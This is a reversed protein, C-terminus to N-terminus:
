PPPPYPPGFNSEAATAFTFFPTKGVPDSYIPKVVCGSSCATKKFAVDAVMWFRNQDSSGEGDYPEFTVATPPDYYGTPGLEAALAGDCFIKLTPHVAYTEGHSSYYHASIRTWDNQPPYDINVNEPACFDFSDPDQELPDCTINDLDLRPNHCGQGLAQWDAGVGRPAFYCTNKEFVPDLWWNVPDPPMFMPPDKFWKPADPNGSEFDDFVCNSWTCDQPSGTISWPLTNQPRHVHLDLDVGDGGLDHEWQLEVRLGPAGVFLPYTCSDTGGGPVGKTYTVTYEGSQLPKYDDPPFQGTVGPCPNVGLPCVVSWTETGAVANQSFSGTGDKLDVNQFPTATIPHCNSMNNAFCNDAVHVGGVCDGWFGNESCKETGDFCGMAGHFSPDGKFCFHAQGASCPCDEDVLNDCDDDLGLHEADCLEKPGCKSGCPDMFVDAPSDDSADPMIFVGGEGSSSSMNMGGLGGMGGVDGTGGSGGGGVSFDTPKKTASCSAAVASAGTMVFVLLVIPYARRRM